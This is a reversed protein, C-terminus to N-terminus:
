SPGGTTATATLTGTASTAATLTGPTTGGTVGTGGRATVAAGTGAPTAGATLTGTGATATGQAATGAAAASGAPTGTGATFAAAAAAGTVAGNGGGGAATGTGGAATAAAATGTVAASASPTGTGGAATGAATTGAIVAGLMAAIAPGAWGPSPAWGHLSEAVEAFTHQVGQATLLADFAETQTQLANYGGVWIRNNVTFDSGTKWRAVNAASLQYNSAYNVQDGYTAGATDDTYATNTAPIDWGAAKAFVAPNRFIASMVGYGTRSFGILYHQEGGTALNAKVWATLLLLFSEQLVAPDDPNDALWPQAAFGPEVLTLNYQNQWGGATVTAVPDGFTTGQGTDPNILWLYGHPYPGPTVPPVVRMDQSGAGNGGCTTSYTSIGGSTSTFTVTLTIAAGPGAAAAVAAGTGTAAAGATLTGTGGAATTAAAVGTVNASVGGPPALGITFVCIWNQTGGSVTFAGGGISSGAAGASGASDAIAAAVTAASRHNVRSTTGAPVVLAGSQCLGGACYVAWDGAVGTTEAPCTVSSTPNAAGASGSVDVPASGNAGGWSGMALSMFSNVGTSNVTVSLGIDGAAATIWFVATGNADSGNNVARTAGIQTWATGTSTVSFGPATAGGAVGEAVLFVVDGAAVGAPITIAKSAVASGGSDASTASSANFSITM